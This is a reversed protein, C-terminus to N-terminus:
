KKKKHKKQRMFESLMSDLESWKDSMRRDWVRRLWEIIAWSVTTAVFVPVIDLHLVSIGINIITIPIGTWALLIANRVQLLSQYEMELRNKRLKLKIERENM